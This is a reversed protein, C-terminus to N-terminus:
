ATEAAQEFREPYLIQMETVHARGIVTALAEALEVSARQIGREVRSLNGVDSQYDLLQLRKVVALLSWGKAQRAKRLPTM